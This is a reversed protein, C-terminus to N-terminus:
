YLLFFVFFAILIIGVILYILAFLFSRKIQKKYREPNEAELIKIFHSKDEGKPKYRWKFRQGKPIYYLFGEKKFKKISYLITFSTLFLGLSIPILLYTLM